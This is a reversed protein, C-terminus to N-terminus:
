AGLARGPNDFADISPLDLGRRLKDSVIGCCSCEEVVGVVLAEPSRLKVEHGDPHTCAPVSGAHRSHVGLQLQPQEGVVQHAVVAARSIAAGNPGHRRSGSRSASHSRGM